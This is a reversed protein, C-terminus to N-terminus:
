SLHGFRSPVETFDYKRHRAPGLDLKLWPGTWAPSVTTAAGLPFRELLPATKAGRNRSAGSAGYRALSLQRQCISPLAGGVVQMRVELMHPVDVQCLVGRHPMLHFVITEDVLIVQAVTLEVPGMWMPQAIKFCQRVVDRRM